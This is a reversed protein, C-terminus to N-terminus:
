RYLWARTRTCSCQRVEFASVYTLERRHATTPSIRMCSLVLPMSFMTGSDHRRCVWAALYSAALLQTQVDSTFLFRATTFSAMPWFQQSPLVCESIVDGRHKPKNACIHTRQLNSISLLWRLCLLFLKIVCVMETMRNTFVNFFFVARLTITFYFQILITKVNVPVNTSNVTKIPAHHKFM